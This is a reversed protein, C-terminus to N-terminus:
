NQNKKLLMNKYYTQGRDFTRYIEANESAYTHAREEKPMKEKVLELIESKAVEFTGGKRCWICDCQRSRENVSHGVAQKLIEEITKMKDPM